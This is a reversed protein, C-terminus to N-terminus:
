VYMQSVLLTIKCTLMLLLKKFFTESCMKMQHVLFDSHYFNLYWWSFWKLGTQQYFLVFHNLRVQIEWVSQFIESKGEVEVLQKVKFKLINLGSKKVKIMTCKFMHINAYLASMFGCFGESKNKSYTPPAAAPKLIDYLWVSMLCTGSFLLKSLKQPQAPVFQAAGPFCLWATNVNM